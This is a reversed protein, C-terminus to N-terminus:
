KLMGPLDKNDLNAESLDLEKPPNNPKLDLSNPDTGTSARPNEIDINQFEKKTEEELPNKEQSPQKEQDFLAMLDKPSETKAETPARPKTAPMPDEPLPHSFAPGLDQIALPGEPPPPTTEPKLTPVAQAAEMSIFLTTTLLLNKFHKM